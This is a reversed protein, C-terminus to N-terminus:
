PILIVSKEVFRRRNKSTRFARLENYIDSYIFLLTNPAYGELDGKSPAARSYPHNHLYGLLWLREKACLSAVRRVDSAVIAHCLVTDEARNPVRRLSSVHSGRGLVLFCVERIEAAIAARRVREFFRRPFFYRNPM